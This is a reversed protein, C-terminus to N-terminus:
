WQRLARTANPLGKKLYMLVSFAKLAPQSIGKTVPVVSVASIVKTFDDSSTRSGADIYIFIDTKKYKLVLVKLIEPIM